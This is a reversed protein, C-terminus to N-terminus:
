KPIYARTPTRIMATEAQLCGSAENENELETQFSRESGSMSPGVSSMTKTDFGNAISLDIKMGRCRDPAGDGPQGQLRV